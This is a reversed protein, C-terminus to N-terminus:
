AWLYSSFLSSFCYLHKRYRWHNEGHQLWAVVPDKRGTLRSSSQQLNKSVQKMESLSFTCARKDQESALWLAACQFKLDQPHGHCGNAGCCLYRCELTSSTSLSIGSERLESCHLSILRLFDQHQQPNSTPSHCCLVIFMHYTKQKCNQLRGTWIRWVSSISIWFGLVTWWQMIKLKWWNLQSFCTSSLGRVTCTCPKKACQM